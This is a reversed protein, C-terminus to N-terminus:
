SRRVVKRRKVTKTRVRKDLGERIFVQIMSSVSRSETKAIEQIQEKLELSYCFSLRSVAM